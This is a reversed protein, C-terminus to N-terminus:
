ALGPQSPGKSNLTGRHWRAFHLCRDSARWTGRSGDHRTSASLLLAICGIMPRGRQGAAEEPNTPFWCLSHFLRPTPSSTMPPLPFLIKIGERSREFHTKFSLSCEARKSQSVGSREERGHNWGDDHEHKNAVNAAPVVELLITVDQKCHGHAAALIGHHRSWEIM